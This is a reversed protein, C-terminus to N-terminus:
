TDHRGTFILPPEAPHVLATANRQRIGDFALESAAGGDLGHDAVHLSFTMEATAVEFAAGAIGGVDDEARDAV